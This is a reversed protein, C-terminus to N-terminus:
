EPLLYDLTNLTKEGQANESLTKASQLISFIALPTLGKKRAIKERNEKSLLYELEDAFDATFSAREDEGPESVPVMISNLLTMQLKPLILANHLINENSVLILQISSKSIDSIFRTMTMLFEPMYFISELDDIILYDQAIFHELIESYSMSTHNNQYFLLFDHLSFYLYDKKLNKTQQFILHTKGMGGAGYIYLPPNSARESYHLTKELMTTALQNYSSVILKRNYKLLLDQQEKLFTEFLSSIHFLEEIQTTDEKKDATEEIKKRIVEAKKQIFSNNPFRGSLQTALTLGAKFEKAEYYLDLARLYSSLAAPEDEARSLYDGYEIYIQATPIFKLSLEFVLDTKESRTDTNQVTYLDKLYRSFDPNDMPQDNETIILDLMAELLFSNEPYNELGCRLEAQIISLEENQNMIELFSPIWQLYQEKKRKRRCLTVMEQLMVADKPFHELGQELVQISQEFDEKRMMEQFLSIYENRAEDYKKNQMYLDLLKQRHKLQFPDYYIIEKISQVAHAYDETQSYRETLEELLTVMQQKKGAARSESVLEKLWEINEPAIEHLKQLLLLHYNIADHEVNKITHKLKYFEDTRRNLYLALAYIIQMEINAADQQYKEEIVSFAAEIPEEKLQRFLEEIENKGIFGQLDNPLSISFENTLELLAQTIPINKSMAYLEVLSGGKIGKCLDYSCNFTRSQAYVRLTKIICDKHIPCFALVYGQMETAAEHKYNLLRLVAIADLSRNVTTIARKITENMM